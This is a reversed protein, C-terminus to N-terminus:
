RESGRQQASQLGANGRGLLKSSSTRRGVGREGETNQSCLWRPAQHCLSGGPAADESCQGNSAGRAAATCGRTLRVALSLRVCQSSLGQRHSNPQEAQLGRSPSGAAWPM